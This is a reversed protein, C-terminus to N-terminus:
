TCWKSFLSKFIHTYKLQLSVVWFFEQYFSIPKQSFTLFNSTVKFPSYNVNAHHKYLLTLTVFNFYCQFYSSDNLYEEQYSYFILAKLPPFPLNRSLQCPNKKLTWKCKFVPILMWKESGSCKGRVQWLVDVCSRQCLWAPFPMDTMESGSVQKHLRRCDGVQESGTLGRPEQQRIIRPAVKIEHM